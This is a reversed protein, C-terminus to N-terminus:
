LMDGILEVVKLVEEEDLVGDKFFVVRGKSDVVTIASGKPKLGWAKLTEGDEDAVIVSKPFKKKNKKLEGAVLGGTGWMADDINVITAVQFKESPFMAAKIADILPKNLANVGKRAAQHQILGVRGVLNAISWTRYQFDDGHPIIEGGKQIAVTAPAEGVNISAALTSIAVFIAALFCALSKM